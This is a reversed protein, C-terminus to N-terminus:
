QKPHISKFTKFIAPNTGTYEIVGYQTAGLLVDKIQRDSYSSNLDSSNVSRNIAIINKVVAQASELVESTQVPEGNGGIIQVRFGNKADKIRIFPFKKKAM